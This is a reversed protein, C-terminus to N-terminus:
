LVIMGNMKRLTKQSFNAVYVHLTSYNYSKFFCLKEVFDQNLINHMTKVGTKIALDSFYSGTHCHEGWLMICM